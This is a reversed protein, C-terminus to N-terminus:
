PMSEVLMDGGGLFFSRERMCPFVHIGQIIRPMFPVDYLKVIINSNVCCLCRKLDHCTKLIAGYMIIISKAAYVNPIYYLM